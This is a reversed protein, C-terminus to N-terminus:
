SNGADETKRFLNKISNQIQEDFSEAKNIGGQLQLKKRVKAPNGSEHASEYDSDGPSHEDSRAAGSGPSTSASPQGSEAVVKHPRNYESRLGKIIIDELTVNMMPDSTIPPSPVKVPTITVAAEREFGRKQMTKEPLQNLARKPISTITVQATSSLIADSPFSSIQSHTNQLNIGDM